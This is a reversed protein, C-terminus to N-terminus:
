LNTSKIIVGSAIFSLEEKAETIADIEKQSKGADEAYHKLNELSTAEKKAIGQFIVIKGEMGKKPVFFGYDKFTVRIPQGDVKVTMWCGRVPCTETIVAQVKANLSDNESLQTLFINSELVGGESIEDGYFGDVAEVEDLETNADTAKQQCSAFVLALASVFLIKKM